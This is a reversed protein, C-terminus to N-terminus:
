GAPQEAIVRSGMRVMFLGLVLLPLEWALIILWGTVTEQFEPVGIARAGVSANLAVHLAIAPWLSRSYLVFAAYYIGSITADITLLSVPGLPQGLALRILHSGGFLVSSWLVAKLIAREGRGWANILAFLVVGRFVVEELVGAASGNLAVAAAQAANPVDFGLDGFFAIMTVAFQYAMVAATLLWVVARGSRHVGADRLWGLHWLLAVVLAASMLRGVAEIAQYTILDRSAVAAAIGALVYLVLALVTALISFAIPHKGAFAKM